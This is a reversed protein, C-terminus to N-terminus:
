PPVNTHTHHNTGPQDDPRLKNCPLRPPTTVKGLSSPPQRKPVLNHRVMQSGISQVRGPEETWPIKWALVSFHTAMEKELLDEWALSQVRM